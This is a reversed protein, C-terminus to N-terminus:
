ALLMRLPGIFGGSTQIPPVEEPPVEEPPVYGHHDDDSAQRMPDPRRAM